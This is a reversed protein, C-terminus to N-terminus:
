SLVWTFFSSFEALQILLGWVGSASIIASIYLLSSLIFTPYLKKPFNLCEFVIIYIPSNLSLWICVGPLVCVWVSLFVRSEYQAWRKTCHFSALQLLARAWLSNALVPLNRANLSIETVDRALCLSLFLSKLSWMHCPICDTVM